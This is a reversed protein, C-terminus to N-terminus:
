FVVKHFNDDQGGKRLIGAAPAWRPEENKEQPLFDYTNNVRM